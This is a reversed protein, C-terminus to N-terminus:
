WGSGPGFTILIHARDPRGQINGFAPTVIDEGQVGAALLYDRIVRERRQGVRASYTISGSRDAQGAIMIEVRESRRYAAIAIDVQARTGPTLNGVDWTFFVIIPAPSATTAQGHAPLAFSCLAASLLFIRM